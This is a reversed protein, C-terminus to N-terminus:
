SPNSDVTLHLLQESFQAASVREPIGQELVQQPNKSFAGETEPDECHGLLTMLAEVLETETMHEGSSSQVNGGTM